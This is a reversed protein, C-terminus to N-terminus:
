RFIMGLISVFASWLTGHSAFYNTTVQTLSYTSQVAPIDFRVRGGSYGSFDTVGNEQKYVMYCYHYWNFPSPQGPGFYEIVNTATSSIVGNKLDSGKVNGVFHHVIPGIGEGTVPHDGM